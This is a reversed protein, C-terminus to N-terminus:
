NGEGYLVFASWIGPQDRYLQLQELQALRLARALSRGEQRWLQHFGYMQVASAQAPVSWLSVMLNPAGAWIFARSLGQVGDGSFSGRGTECAWLIVLEAHLDLWFAEPVRLYGDDPGAGAAFAIYSDLPDFPKDLFKAHTVLCLETAEKVRGILTAKTAAEGTFVLRESEPFFAAINPFVAALDGLDNWRKGDEAMPMPRPNVLALLHPEHSGLRERDERSFKLVALSPGYVLTHSEVLYRQASDKLAAFPVSLLEAHPILTLPADASDPLLRAPIPKILLAHLQHLLEATRDATSGSAHDAPSSDLLGHLEALARRLAERPSGESPPFHKALPETFAHVTGQPSIVWIALTNETLFYEITTSQRRHVIDLLEELPLPAVADPSPLDRAPTQLPHKARQERIKDRGGLLDLLARSRAAEAVVLAARDQDAELLVLILEGFFSQLDELLHVKTPDKVARAWLLGPQQALRHAAEIATDGATWRVGSSPLTALRQQATQMQIEVGEFLVGVEAQRVLFEGWPKALGPQNRLKLFLESEMATMMAADMTTVERAQRWYRDRQELLIPYKELISKAQATLSSFGLRASEELRSSQQLLAAMAQEPSRNGHDVEVLLQRLAARHDAIAARLSRVEALTGALAEALVPAPMTRVRPTPPAQALQALSGERQALAAQSFELAEEAPQLVKRVAIAPQAEEASRLAHLIKAGRRLDALFSPYDRAALDCGILRGLVQDMLTLALPKHVPSAAAEVQQRYIQFAKELPLRAADCRGALVLDLGTNRLADADSMDGVTAGSPVVIPARRAVLPHLPAAPSDQRLGILLDGGAVTRLFLTAGTETEHALDARGEMEFGVFQLPPGQRSTLTARLRAGNRELILDDGASEAGDGVTFHGTFDFPGIVQLAAAAAPNVKAQGRFIARYHSPGGAVTSKVGEAEIEGEIQEGSLTFSLLIKQATALVSGSQAPSDRTAWASEQSLPAAPSGLTLTVKQAPSLVPITLNSSATLWGPRLDGPTSLTLSFRKEGQPLLFFQGDIATFEGAETTGTLTIAFERGEPPLAASPVGPAPEATLSPDALTSDSRRGHFSAKYLHNHRHAASLESGTAEIEGSVEDGSVTFRIQGHLAGFPVSIGSLGPERSAAWWSPALVDGEPADVQARVAGGQVVLELRMSKESASAWTFSGNSIQGVTEFRLALPERSGVSSPLVKLEAQRRPLAEGDLLGDLSVAFVTPISVGGVQESAPRALSPASSLDQRVSALEVQIAAVAYVAELQGGEPTEHIIGDLSARAKLSSSRYARFEITGRQRRYTGTIPFLDDRIDASLSPVFRFTGDSFFTWSAQAFLTSLSERARTEEAPSFARFGDAVAGAPGTPPGVPAPLRLLHVAPLTEGTLTLVAPAAYVPAACIALAVLPLLFPLLVLGPRELQQNM